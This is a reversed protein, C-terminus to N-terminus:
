TSLPLNRDPSVCMPTIGLVAEWFLIASLSLARALCVPLSLSHSLSLSPYLALSHTQTVSPTQNTVDDSGGARGLSLGHGRLAAPLPFPLSRDSESVVAPIETRPSRGRRRARLRSM